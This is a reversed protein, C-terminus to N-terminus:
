DKKQGACWALYQSRLDRLEWADITSPDRLALSELPALMEAPPAQGLATHAQVMRFMARLSTPAEPGFVQQITGLEADLIQLCEAPAGSTLAVAALNSVASLVLPQRDGYKERAVNLIQKLLSKAEAHNGAHSLAVALNSQFRLSQPQDNGWQREAEAVV